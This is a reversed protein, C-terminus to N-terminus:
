SLFDKIVTLKKEKTELTNLILGSDNLLIQDEIDQNNGYVSFLNDGM